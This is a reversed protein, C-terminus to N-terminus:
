GVPISSSPATSTGASATGRPRSTTPRLSAARTIESNILESIVRASRVTGPDWSLLAAAIAVTIPVRRSKRLVTPRPAAANGDVGVVVGLLHVSWGAHARVHPVAPRRWPQSPSAGASSGRERPLRSLPTRLGGSGRPMPGGAVEWHAKCPLAHGHVSRVSRPLLRSRMRSLEKSLLLDHTAAFWRM